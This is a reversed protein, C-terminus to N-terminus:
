GAPCSGETRATAIVHTRVLHLVCPADPDSPFKYEGLSVPFDLSVSSFYSGPAFVSRVGLAKFATWNRIQVNTYVLPAKVGYVLAQKQKDPLEACLHPIIGNYGPFGVALDAVRAMGNSHHNRGTLLCARTPSCLATTHFNNFRLGSAALRDM